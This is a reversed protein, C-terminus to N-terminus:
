FIARRFPFRLMALAFGAMSSVILLLAVAGGTAIVSNIFYEGLKARGWATVFNELTTASVIGFRDLIYEKSTKLANNLAFLVPYVCSLALVAMPVAAVWRLRREEKGLVAM